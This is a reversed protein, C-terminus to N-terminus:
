QAKPTFLKKDFFVVVAFLAFALLLVSASGIFASTTLTNNNMSYALFCVPMLAGGIMGTWAQVAAIKRMSPTPFVYYFIGYAFLSLWGVVLIHSHGPLMSYDKSGAMHSGLFAGLLAYLASIRIFWKSYQSM